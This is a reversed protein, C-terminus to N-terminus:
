ETGRRDIQGYKLASLPQTGGSPPVSFKGKWNELVGDACSGTYASM